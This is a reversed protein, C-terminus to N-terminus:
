GIEEKKKQLEKTKKLYKEADFKLDLPDKLLKL